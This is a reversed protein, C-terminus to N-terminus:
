IRRCQKARRAEKRPVEQESDQRRRKIATGALTKSPATSDAARANPGFSTSVDSCEKVTSQLDKPPGELRAPVKDQLIPRSDPTSGKERLGMKKARRDPETSTSLLPPSTKKAMSTSTTPGSPTSPGLTASTPCPASPPPLPLPLFCQRLTNIYSRKFSPRIDRLVSRDGDKHSHLSHRLQVSCSSCEYFARNTFHMIVHSHLAERSLPFNFVRACVGKFACLVLGKAALEASAVKYAEALTKAIDEDGSHPLPLGFCTEALEQLEASNKRLFDRTLKESFRAHSGKFHRLLNKSAPRNPCKSCQHSKRQLHTLTHPLVGRRLPDEEEGPGCLRCVLGPLSAAADMRSRLETVAASVAGSKGSEAVAVASSSRVGSAQPVSPSSDPVQTKEALESKLSSLQSAKTPSTPKQLEQGTEQAMSPTKEPVEPRSSPGAAPTDDDTATSPSRSSPPHKPPIPNKSPENHESGCGDLLLDALRACMRAPSKKVLRRWQGAARELADGLDGLTSTVEM